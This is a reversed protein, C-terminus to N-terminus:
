VFPLDDEVGPPIDMFGDNSKDKPPKAALQDNAPAAANKSEGFEVSEAIVDTTYVKTGDEKTYSGTQLRGTVEMKMGKRFYKEVFEASKGFAVVNPFDADPGGESKFRRNVALSFRAISTGNNGYRIEPDRTLRGTICVSNM